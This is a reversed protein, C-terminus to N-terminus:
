SPIKRRMLCTHACIESQSAHVQHFPPLNVSQSTGYASLQSARPQGSGTIKDMQRPINQLGPMTTLGHDQVPVQHAQEWSIQLKRTQPRLNQHHQEEMQPQHRVAHQQQQQQRQRQGQHDQYNQIRQQPSLPNQGPASISRRISRRDSLDVAATPAATTVAATDASLMEFAEMSLSSHTTHSHLRTDGCATWSRQAQERWAMQQPQDPDQAQHDAHQQGLEHQNRGPMMQDTDQGGGYGDRNAQAALPALEQGPQFQRPGQPETAWEKPLTHMLVPPRSVSVHVHEYGDSLPPQSAIASDM